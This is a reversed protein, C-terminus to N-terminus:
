HSLGYIMYNVGLKYADNSADFPFLGQNDYNAVVILRKSPDNDEFIGYYSPRTDQIRFFVNFIQDTSDLRTLRGDPLVRQMQEEFNAWQETGDFDEFIAFGGKLLYGRFSEAEHDTLTWFGPQWMLAVPYKCLDPDDLTLIESGDDHVDLYTLERIIASLNREAHPYDHSWADQVRRRSHPSGAGWRLRVLTFRGDYPIPASYHGRAPVDSLPRNTSSGSLM